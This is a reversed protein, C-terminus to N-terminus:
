GVASTEGARVAEELLSRLRDPDSTPESCVYQRCVYATARGDRATRDELLAVDSSRDAPGGALVLAPLYQGAVVSALSAFGPSPPDGVLAVETAGNISLDAAGLLHGFALGHQALPAALTELIWNARRQMAADRFLEALRLLLEVALSTGAPTANDTVDRPRTILKEHDHATDFFVNATEDWFSAVVQDGLSRAHALWEPDFTLEYLALFALGLAAHDELFGHIRGQGDKWSRLVRGDRIMERTLFEGSRVAISRWDDRAFARAADAIARLMLGNWSALVKEDRGPWVRQGRREYLLRRARVLAAEIDAVGVRERAAVAAPDHPVYLINHGEFNGSSSVGWYRAVLAADEGVIEGLESESWVYFKGEEGESDADLSSYFGGAPSLMERLAWEITEEAVRRIEADGTAQWLHVGLRALLANDYLMKEFHPVLWIADVAYRHFGGGVQDYIGGRAMRRFSHAAIELAHANGTRRWYRLSFDLAMAQPFKPAGEFGGQRADYRVAISRWARELLAPTLPGTSRADMPPSLIRKLEEGSRAVQDRRNHYADAVGALVRRFSPMGRSDEPPFYTGGFFPVGEPTLFMTMPWGGHGTMAQVASMYIGDLDPREERDVKINVFHENMVRATDPDVFSEREMVHCWHCAAYGISLLIPKDERRARELAEASWPYWDVPNHAHQLLYPSTERALRNM